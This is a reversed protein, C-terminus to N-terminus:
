IYYEPYEEILYYKAIADPSISWSPLELQNNNEDIYLITDCLSKMNSVFCPRVKIGGGSDLGFEQEMQKWSKIRVAKM